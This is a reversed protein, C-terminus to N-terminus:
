FVCGRAAVQLTQTVRGDRVFHVENFLNSIVCVHNPVISIQEGIRPKQACESVDICAHEESLGYIRAQPYERIWGHGTLGLLDSSLAKSGADIVARDNVPRSVVTARVTLACDSLECTGSKVLSLDNYVYTGVRYETLCGARQAQWMAPSGGGSVTAVPLGAQECLEKASSLWATVHGGANAPPYTLLGAFQLAANGEIHRALELAAEPSQVGCRAAGTDCEVMVRLPAAAGRMARQLEDVTHSSDAVVTVLARETLARLRRLREAGMLNYTILIDDFGGAAFVEAESLKQCNIGVAGAALQLRGVELLKHTKIHPRLALGARDCHTQFRTINRQLTREDVVPCPTLLEEIHMVGDCRNSSRTRIM